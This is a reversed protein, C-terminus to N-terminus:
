LYNVFAVLLVGVAVSGNVFGDVGGTADDIVPVSFDQHAVFYSIVDQHVGTLHFRKVGQGQGGDQVHVGLEDAAAQGFVVAPAAGDAELGHGHDAVERGLGVHAEVLDFVLKGAEAPLNAADTVIGDIGAAVQQSINGLHILGIQVAVRSLVAASVIGAHGAYLGGALFFETSLFTVVNVEAIGAVLNLLWVLVSGHVLFGNRSVVNHGGDVGRQLLIPLLEHLVLHARQYGNLRGGSFDQRQNGRRTDIHGHQGVDAFM